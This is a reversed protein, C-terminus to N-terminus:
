KCSSLEEIQSYPAPKPRFSATKAEWVIIYCCYISGECEDRQSGDPYLFTRFDGAWEKGECRPCGTRRRIEVATDVWPTAPPRSKRIVWPRVYSVNGYEDEVKDRGLSTIDGDGTSPSSIRAARGDWYHFDVGAERMEDQKEGGLILKAREELTIDRGINIQSMAFKNIAARELKHLRTGRGGEEFRKRLRVRLRSTLNYVQKIKLSLFVSIEESTRGELLLDFLRTDAENLTSRIDELAAAGTLVDELPKEERIPKVWRHDGRDQLDQWDDIDDSEKLARVEKGGANVDGTAWTNKRYADIGCNKVISYIWSSFKCGGKFEPLKQIVRVVADAAVDDDGGIKRSKNKKISWAVKKAYTNIAAFLTEADVDGDVYRQYLENVDSPEERKDSVEEEEGEEDELNPSDLGSADPVPEDDPSEIEEEDDALFRDPHLLEDSPPSADGENQGIDIM